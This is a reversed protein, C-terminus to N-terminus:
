QTDETGIADIDISPYITKFHTLYSYTLFILSYDMTIAQENNNM